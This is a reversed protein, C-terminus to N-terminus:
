KELRLRAAPGPRTCIVERVGETNALVDRVSQADTAECLVKVHPGADMTFYCAIGQSRLRVIEHIVQITGPSFYIVAPSAALMSAHMMLTSQEMAAGLRPLDRELVATRAEDFLRPAADLWPRYYASTERTLNMAETSGVAKKGSATVAVLLVLNWHAAPALESAADAGVELVSWGEFLSRAASASAERAIASLEAVSHGTRYAANAATVLAAFGSASSALGAATPFDNRTRVRAFHPSGSVRRFQEIVRVVRERPRGINLEGDLYIEDACLENDLELQTTTTLGSLTLSLSPVAPYNGARELKGWYKICAINSNAESVAVTVHSM